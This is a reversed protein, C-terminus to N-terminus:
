ARRLARSLDGHALRCTHRRRAHPPPQPGPLPRARASRGLDLFTAPLDLNLVPAQIVKGRQGAQVRPDAIILPVRLSEEFHSWKGTLGRNAMHYGNDASYVIVTNGTLGAEQLATLLRGIANDIGTVMRLYARMNTQYKEPTNWRWFYRERTISTKFFDPLAEFIAPDDLRPRLMERDAYLGDASQPWAFHPGPRRDSDEAHCANFWLQLAFPKDKPQQKVFEIGRDVILDTEHRLTGDPQKKFYPNRGIDEFADFHDGPKSGKPLKTHWKGFHGTRYGQTRLLDTYFTKGNAESPQDPAEPTGFSRGTLGTLISTRSVWCISQSVFANQFRVGRAALSDLHPTQAIPHGYCGLSSSTQDDAFLFIINPKEAAGTTSVVSACFVGLLVLSLAKM